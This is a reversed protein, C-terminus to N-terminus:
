FLDEETIQKTRKTYNTSRKQFFDNSKTVRTEDEFWQTKSVLSPLTTFKPQLGIAMLSKNLRNRIFSEVHARPAVELDGGEYIWDLVKMEADFAKNAMDYIRAILGDNWWDPNEEKIIRVIDFGFNAHLDEEKSTAEVANSMGKLTNGFKNFAMIIYFQSFLSVNEVLMSFFILTEFYRKPDNVARQNIKDIYALRDRMCPIDYIHEFESNLGMRELLASYADEHRVESEAFSAGVKAIEPKPMYQYLNGWFTKVSAEIQSIALMTRQVAQAEHPKLNVRLDQIDPDYNFETHIWYSHRIADVYGLLEPYEYPKINVRKSFINRKSAPVDLPYPLVNTM